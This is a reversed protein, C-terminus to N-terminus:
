WDVLTGWFFHYFVCYHELTLNYWQIVSNLNQAKLDYKIQKMDWSVIKLKERWTNPNLPPFCFLQGVDCLVQPCHGHESVVVIDRLVWLKSLNTKFDNQAKKATKSKSQATLWCVHQIYCYFLFSLHVVESLCKPRERKRKPLLAPDPCQPEMNCHDWVDEPGFEQTLCSFLSQFSGLLLLLYGCVRM